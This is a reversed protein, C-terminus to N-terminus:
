EAAIQLSAADLESPLQVTGTVQGNNPFLESSLLENASPRGESNPKGDKKANLSRLHKAIGPWKIDLQKLLKKKYKTLLSTNSWTFPFLLDVLIVSLSYMDAKSDYHNGQCEPAQYAEAGKNPTHRFNEQGSYKQSYLCDRESQGHYCFLGFDAIKWQKDKGLLINSPKLDRHIIGSAHLFEVIREVFDAM